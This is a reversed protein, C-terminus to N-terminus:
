PSKWYYGLESKLWTFGRQKMEAYVGQLLDNYFRAMAENPLFSTHTRESESFQRELVLIDANSLGQYSIDQKNTKDRERKARQACTNGCYEPRKTKYSKPGIFDCMPCNLTIEKV